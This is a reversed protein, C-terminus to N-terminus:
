KDTLNWVGEWGAGASELLKRAQVAYPVAVVDVAALEDFLKAAEAFQGQEMLELAAEFREFRERDREWRSASVPEFVSEPTVRGVVRLKAVRRVRIAGQLANATAESVLIDTGFAKNAGELRSALNVTDGIATYDFRRVSGFNGVVASGTALGIRAKLEVGYREQMPGRLEDLVEQCRFATEVATRAHHEVPLPANWFCVIADGVYKDLTGGHELIINTMASLYENLMTVLTHPDLQEAIRSFGAIDSFFVTLQRREGGLALRSPDAVLQDIVATSVYQRFASKVFRHARGEIGYQYGLSAIVAAALVLLPAVLPIWVGAAAAKYSVAVVLGFTGLVGIGQLLLRHSYLCATTAFLSVAFLLLLNEMPRSRRVFDRHLLNDLITANIETGPFVDSIPTPRFDLLAPANSGIIVWKDKFMSPSVKPEQGEAMAYASRLVPAISLSTYTQEPGHFRIVAEGDAAFLEEFEALSVSPQVARLFALPLSLVTTKGVAAVPAFRRFVGDRDPKAKVNALYAKSNVVPDVPLTASSFQMSSFRTALRDLWPESLGNVARGRLTKEIAQGDAGDGVVLAHVVPISGDAAEGLRLDDEGGQSSQETFIMDFAVGKAGGKALYRVLLAYVERPWQWSLQEVKEFENLSSKDVLLLVIDRDARTPDIAAQARWDWTRSELDQLQPSGLSIGLWGLLTLTLTILAHALLRSRM